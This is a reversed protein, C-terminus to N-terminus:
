NSPAKDLPRLAELWLQAHDSLGQDSFHCHDFRQSARNLQDTDAGPHVGELQRPLELQTNRIEDNTIGRCISAVAPYVPADVGYGRLSEVLAAFMRAYEPGPTGERADKEGQHWLVHTPRINREQLLRVAQEVRVHLDGDPAWRAIRTGGIGFPVILVQDAGAEILQDGLRSWVSGETGDPGLLPDEAHYCSGDHVNFNVVGDVSAHRTEGSNASNSQGFTLLVPRRIPDSGGAFPACSTARRDSVDQFGCETRDGSACKRRFIMVLNLARGAWVAGTDRGASGALYGLGFAYGLLVYLAAISLAAVILRKM